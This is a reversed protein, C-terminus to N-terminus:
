FLYLQDFNSCDIVTEGSKCPPSLAAIGQQNRSSRACSLAPLFFCHSNKQNALKPHALSQNYIYIYIILCNFLCVAFFTRGYNKLHGRSAGSFFLKHSVLM